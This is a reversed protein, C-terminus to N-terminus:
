DRGRGYKKSENNEMKAVWWGGMGSFVVLSYFSGSFYIAPLFFPPARAPNLWGEFRFFFPFFPFYFLFLVVFFFIFSLFVARACTLVDTGGRTVGESPSLYHHFFPRIYALAYRPTKIGKKWQKCVADTTYESFKRVDEFLLGDAPCSCQCRTLELKLLYVCERRSALRGRAEVSGAFYSSNRIRDAVTKQLVTTRKHSQTYM